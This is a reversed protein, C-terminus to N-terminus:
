RMRAFHVHRLMLVSGFLMSAALASHVDVGGVLSVGGLGAVILLSFCALALVVWAVRHGGQLQSAVCLFAGLAVCAVSFGVTGWLRWVPPLVYLLLAAGVLALAVAAPGVWTLWTWSELRDLLESVCWLMMASLILAVVPKASDNFGPADPFWWLAAYGNVLLIGAVCGFAFAALVWGPRERLDFASILCVLAVALGMGMVIGSLNAQRLRREVYQKQPLLQLPVQFDVQNDLAVLLDVPQDAVHLAFAPFPGYFPWRSLAVRDGGESPQWAGSGTRWWVRVRDLRSSPAQLMFLEPSALGALRLRVVTTSGAEIRVRSDAPADVQPSPAPRAWETDPDLPSASALRHIAAVAGLEVEKAAGLELLPPFTAAQAAGWGLSWLLLFFLTRRM